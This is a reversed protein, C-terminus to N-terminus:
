ILEKTHSFHEFENGYFRNTQCQHHRPNAVLCVSDCCCDGSQDSRRISVSLRQSLFPKLSCASAFLCRTQFSSFTTVLGSVNFIATLKHLERVSCPVNRLLMFEQDIPLDHQLSPFSVDPTSFICNGTSLKQKSPNFWVSWLQTTNLPLYKWFSPCLKPIKPWSSITFALVSFKTRWHIVDCCWERVSSLKKTGEKM